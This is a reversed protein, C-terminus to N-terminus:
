HGQRATRRLVGEVVSAIYRGRTTGEERSQRLLELAEDHGEQGQTSAFLHMAPVLTMPDRRLLQTCEEASFDEGSDAWRIYKSWFEAEVSLPFSRQAEALLEPFRKGALAVFTPALKNAASMGYDTSQWYLIALNLITPLPREGRALVAEYAAAATEIRGARDAAIAAQLQTM